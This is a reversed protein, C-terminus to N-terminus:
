AMLFDCIWRIHRANRSTQPGDFNVINLHVRWIERLSSQGRAGVTVFGATSLRAM